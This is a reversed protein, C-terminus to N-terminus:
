GFRLLLAEANRLMIYRARVSANTRPEAEHEAFKQFLKILVKESELKKYFCLYFNSFGKVFARKQLLIDAYLQSRFDLLFERYVTCLATPHHLVSPPSNRIVKRSSHASRNRWFRLPNGGDDPSVNISTRLARRRLTRTFCLPLVAIDTTKADMVTALVKKKQM